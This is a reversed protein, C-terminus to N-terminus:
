VVDSDGWSLYWNNPNKVYAVDVQDSLVKAAFYIKQPLVKKPVRIFGGKRFFKYQPHSPMLLMSISDAKRERAIDDLKDLIASYTEHNDGTASCEMVYVTKLGLKEAVYIVFCGCLAGERSVTYIEYTFFPKELYRWQLYRSDRVVGIKDSIASEKWPAAMGAPLGGPPVLGIKYNDNNHKHAPFVAKSVIGCIRSVTRSLVNNGLYKRVFPFFDIIRLHLPFAGVEFWGLRAIFGQISQANPFGFVIQCGDKTIDEYLAQALKIFLGKGRHKTDTATATSIAGEVRTEKYSMPFRMVAYQAVVESDIEAVVVPPSVAFRNKFQWVWTKRISDPEFTNPFNDHLLQAIRAEDGEKYKRILRDNHM